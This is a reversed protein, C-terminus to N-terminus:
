IKRIQRQYFFFNRVKRAVREPTDPEVAAAPATLPAATKVTAGTAIELNQCTTPAAAEM